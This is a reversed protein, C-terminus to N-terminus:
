TNILGMWKILSGSEMMFEKIRGYMSEKVMFIIKSSNGVSVVEMVEYSIAKVANKVTSIIASMDQEMLGSKKVKAKKNIMKGIEKIFLAMLMLTYVLEALRKWLGNAKIFM